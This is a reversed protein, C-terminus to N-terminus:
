PQTPSAGMRMNALRQRLNDIEKKLDLIVDRTGYVSGLEQRMEDVRRNVDLLEQDRARNREMWENRAVMNARLDTISADTRTRDEAGRASRWDMEQRSISNAALSAVAAKLDTTAERIPMYALGGLIAAFALMVSLAQWQPKAREALNATLANFREDMKSNIASVQQNVGSMQHAFERRFDGFVTELNTIRQSQIGIREADNGNMNDAM